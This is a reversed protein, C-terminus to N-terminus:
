HNSLIRRVAIYKLDKGKGFEVWLEHLKPIRHYASVVLFVVYSDGTKIHTM